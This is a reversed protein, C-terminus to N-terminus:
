APSAYLAKTKPHFMIVLVVIGPLTGGGSLAYLVGLIINVTRAWPRHNWTAWGLGVFVSAVVLFFVLTLAVPGLETDAEALGLVVFLTGIALTSAALLGHFGAV